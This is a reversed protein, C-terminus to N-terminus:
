DGETTQSKAAAREDRAHQRIDEQLLERLRTRAKHL